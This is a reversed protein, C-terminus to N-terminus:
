AARDGRLEDLCRAFYDASPDLAADAWAKASTEDVGVAGLSNVCSTHVRYRAALERADHEARSKDFAAGEPIQSRRRDASVKYRFWDGRWYRVLVEVDSASELEPRQKRIATTLDDLQGRPVAEGTEKGKLRALLENVQPRFPKENKHANVAATIDRARYNDLRDCIDVLEEDRFKGPWLRCLLVSVTERDNPTM